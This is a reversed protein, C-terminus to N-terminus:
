KNKKKNIQKKLLPPTKNAKANQIRTQQMIARTEKEYIERAWNTKGNGYGLQTNRKRHYELLEWYKKDGKTLDIKEKCVWRENKDLRQLWLMEREEETYIKNRYYIPLSIKHGQLTTYTEDTNTGNFKNYKINHSKTYQGGIGDSTLIKPKYLKHDLDQKHIYKIMYNVTQDNVWNIKRGYEIDWKWVHGNKGHKGNNWIREVELLNYEWEKTIDTWVIGHLHINETGQHGLETVMWHRIAKKHKSRWNENFRRMALTAVENDLIYGTPTETGEKAQKQIIEEALKTYSEDSFTLTVFIGNKNHKIDELLRIQWGRAKQKRCEICEGCGVPVYRTREDKVPPINGGNKKNSVYKRNKILTPYLCM